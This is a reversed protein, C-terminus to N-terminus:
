KRLMLIDKKTTVGTTEKLVMMGFMIKSVYFLVQKGNDVLNNHFIINNSSWSHYIGYGNITINNGSITNNSSYYLSIGREWNQTVTNGFISNFKSGSGLGIGWINDTINNSHINNYSSLIVIGDNNNAITNHSISNNISKVWIGCDYLMTGSKRITFDTISVNNAAIYIVKGTGNGDVITSSRDEGVLSVSKNVNVNEYYTGERVFITDEDEVDLSNIAEQITHFDAPGDDDVTWTKPEGKVQQINFVFTLTGILLLTLMLGSVIKRKL